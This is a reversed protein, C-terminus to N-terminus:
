WLGPYLTGIPATYLTAEAITTDWSLDRLDDEVLKLLEVRKDLLQWALLMEAYALVHSLLQGRM